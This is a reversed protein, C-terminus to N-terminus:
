KLIIKEHVSPDELHDGEKLNQVLFRYATEEGGYTGCAGGMEYQNLQRLM